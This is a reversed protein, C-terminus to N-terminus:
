IDIIDGNKNKNHLFLIEELVDKKDAGNIESIIEEKLEKIEMIDMKGFTCIKGASLDPM